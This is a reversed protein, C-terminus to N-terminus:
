PASRPRTRLGDGPARPESINVTVGKGQNGDQPKVVVPLGLEQAVAWAEELSTEVPRGLPVPVGAAQLLRKTLDKDQRSPNPWPAPPTSRPRRSAASSPAGALSCWAATPSGGTWPIGRAVAADVISGTSPGLRVDEDLERLEAIAAEADEALTAPGPKVLHTAWHEGIAPFLARIRSEFARPLSSSRGSTAQPQPLPSRVLIELATQRTWLNPGRLARVRDIALDLAQEAAM